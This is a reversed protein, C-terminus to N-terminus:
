RCLLYESIEKIVEVTEKDSLENYADGIEFPVDYDTLMSLTYIFNEMTINKVLWDLVILQNKSM